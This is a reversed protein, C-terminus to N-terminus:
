NLLESDDFNFPKRSLITNQERKLDNKELYSSFDNSFVAPTKMSNSMIRASTIDDSFLDEYAAMCNSVTPIDATSYQGTLVNGAVNALVAALNFTASFMHLMGLKELVRKFEDVYINSPPYYSQLASLVDSNHSMLSRFLRSNKALKKRNETIAKSNPALGTSGMMSIIGATSALLRVYPPSVAQATNVGWVGPTGDWDLIQEIEIFLNTLDSQEQLLQEDSNIIEIMKKTITAAMSSDATKMLNNGVLLTTSLSTVTISKNPDNFRDLSEEYSDRVTELTAKAFRLVKEVGEGAGNGMATILKLMYSILFNILAGINHVSATRVQSYRYQVYARTLNTVFSQLASIMMQMDHVFQDRPDTFIDSYISRDLAADTTAKLKVEEIDRKRDTNLKEMKYSYKTIDDPNKGSELYEKTAEKKDAKWQVNIAKIKPTYEKEAKTSIRQGIISSNVFISDSGTISIATALDGRMSTYLAEDFFASKSLGDEDATDIKKILTACKEIASRIYPLSEDMKSVYKGGGFEVTWRAFISLATSLNIRAQILYRRENEAAKIAQSLPIDVLAFLADPGSLFVKLLPALISELASAIFSSATPAIQNVISSSVSGAVSILESVTTDIAIKTGYLISSKVRVVRSIIDRVSQITQIFQAYVAFIEAYVSCISKPPAM